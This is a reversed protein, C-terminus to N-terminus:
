AELFERSVHERAQELVRVIYRRCLGFEKALDETTLDGADLYFRQFIKRSRPSLGKLAEAMRQGIAPDNSGDVDDTGLVAGGVPEGPEGASGDSIGVFAPPMTWTAWDEQSVGLDEATPETGHRLRFANAAKAVPAPIKHQRTRKVNTATQVAQQIEHRIWYAAYTSFSSKEPSFKKLAHMLGIMGAQQVDDDEYGAGFRRALRVVLPKNLTVLADHLRREKARDTGEDRLKVYEALKERREDVQSV